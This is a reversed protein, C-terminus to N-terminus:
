EEEAAAPEWMEVAVAEDVICDCEILSLLLFTVNCSASLKKRWSACQLCEMSVRLVNAPM